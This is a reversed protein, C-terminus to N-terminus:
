PRPRLESELTDWLTRDALPTDAPLQPNNIKFVRRGSLNLESLISKKFV